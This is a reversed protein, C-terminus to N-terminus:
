SYTTHLSSLYSNSISTLINVTIIEIDSPSSMLNSTIYDKIAMLVGGGGTSRDKRYITYGTPIIENDYIVDSLWM